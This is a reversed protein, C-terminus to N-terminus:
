AITIIEGPRVIFEYPDFVGSAGAMILNLGGKRRLDSALIEYFGELRDAPVALRRDVCHMFSLSNDEVKSCSVFMNVDRSKEQSKGQSKGENNQQSKGSFDPSFDVTVRNSLIKKLEDIIQNNQLQNDPLEAFKNIQSDFEFITESVLKDILEGPKNSLQYGRSIAKRITQLDQPSNALLRGLRKRLVDVSEPSDYVTDLLIESIKKRLATNRKEQIASAFEAVFLHYLRNRLRAAAAKNELFGIEPNNEGADAIAQDIEAPDYPFLLPSSTSSSTGSGTYYFYLLLGNINSVFGIKTLIKLDKSGQCIDRLPIIKKHALVSSNLKGIVAQLAEEPLREDKSRPRYRTKDNIPEVSPNVPLYVHGLPTDLIFGYCKNSLNVLESIISYQPFQAVFQKVDAAGFVDAGPLKGGDSRSNASKFADRIVIELNDPVEGSDGGFITRMAMWRLSLETKLYISPNTMGVFYTLDTTGSPLDTLSRFLIIFKESISTDMSPGADLAIAGDADTITFISVNYTIQALEVMLNRWSESKGGPGFPSLEHSKRVFTTIISDSLAAPTKFVESAHGALTHFSEGLGAATKAIEVLVDEPTEGAGALAEAIAFVYGAFPVAVTSQEVGVLYLQYPPQVANLFLGGGLVQPLEGIRGHPIQKGYSLVHKTESLPMPPPTQPAAQSDPLLTNKGKDEVASLCKANAQSVRSNKAPRTKKCCPLCYGLPHQGARFSLHPYSPDPCRYLAPVRDTFNWYKTLTTQTKAPLLSAETGNYAIPQRGSQCLVSYVTADPNYKKLDFLDPDREQLQKLRSSTSVEVASKTPKNKLLSNRLSDLYVFIYKRILEFEELSDTALIEVRVDVTRHTIRITRGSFAASWKAEVDPDSLWLYTNLAAGTKSAPADSSVPSSLKAAVGSANDYAVIGKTFSFTFMNSAQLGKVTILGAREYRRFGEKLAKFDNDSLAQQWFASVTISGLTIQKNSSSTQLDLIHGGIPFALAGLSNIKDVLPRAIESIENLVGVFDIRADERWTSSVNYSGDAYATFKVYRDVTKNVGGADFDKAGATQPTIYAAFAEKKLPQAIFVDISHAVNQNFSTVHRKVATAINSVGGQPLLRRLASAELTAPSGAWYNASLTSSDFKAIVVPLELSVPVSDFVNRVAFKMRAAGPAARLTANTIATTKRGSLSAAPKWRNAENSVSQAERIKASASALDPFLLPFSGLERSMLAEVLASQSLAPWYKIVAGYYLLDLQYKDRLVNELGDNRRESSTLPPLVQYLDVFYAASMRVLPAPGLPTFFDLAEVVIAEKQKELDPDVAMGALTTKGFPTTGSQSRLMRWDVPIPASDLTIRCPYYPGEGNYYYFLHQNYPYVGTACFIKRRLDALTDEPYVAIDTFIPAAPVGAAQVRSSSSRKKGRGARHDSDAIQDFEDGGISVRETIRNFIEFSKLPSTNASPRSSNMTLDVDKGSVWTTDDPKPPDSATLLSRWQKGYFDHLTTKAAPKWDVFRVDKTPAGSRAAALVAAPVDGLFFVAQLFKKTDPDVSAAFLPAQIFPNM